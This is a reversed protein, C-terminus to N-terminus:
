YNNTPITHTIPLTISVTTGVNLESNISVSGGHTQAIARVIALGLGSGGTERSRSEEARFFQDFVRPLAEPSIGIGTDSIKLVATRAGALLSLTVKGHPQNYSLANNLVNTTMRHLESANGMVMCPELAIIELSINQQEFLPQLHNVSDQILSELAVPKFSQRASEDAELKALLSINNVLDRMRAISTSVASLKTQLLQPDTTGRGLNDLVAQAVTIPTKLEHGANIMYERLLSFAQEIPRTTLTAFYYGCAGLLSLLLPATLVLMLLRKNRAQERLDTPLQVQLYGILHAQDFLQKSQSRLHHQKFSVETTGPFLTELGYAGSRYVLNGKTDFLQIAAMMRIPIQNLHSHPSKFILSGDQYDVNRLNEEILEHLENDLVRTLEREFLIGTTITTLLYAALALLVFWITLKLRVQKFM